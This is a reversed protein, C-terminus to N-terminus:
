RQSLLTECALQGTRAEEAYPALPTGALARIDEELGAADGQRRRADARLLHLLGDSPVRVLGESYAAEAEAHRGLNCDALGRLLYADPLGPLAARLADAEAAALDHQGLVLGTFSSLLPGLPNAAGGAGFTGRLLLNGLAPDPYRRLITESLAAAEPLRGERLAILAALAYPYNADPGLAIARELDERARAEDGGLYHLAGRYTHGFWDDPRLAVVQDYEAVAAALDGRLLADNALMARPIAWDAPGIRRATEIDLRAEDLRGARQRALGRSTYLIPNGGSLAIAESLEAVAAMADDAFLATARHYHTAVSSGIPEAPTVPRLGMIAVTRVTEYVDGQANQLLSLAGLVYPAASERRADSIRLRVNAAQEVFARDVRVGPMAEPAGVQVHVELHDGRDEGWVVIAARNAEAAARAEDDSTVPRPYVRVRIRSFPAEVELAQRLDDAVADVEDGELRAVLVMFDGPAVPAVREPALAGQQAGPQAGMTARLGGLGSRLALGGGLALVAVVALLLLGRTRSRRPPSRAPEPPVPATIPAAALPTDGARAPPEVHSALLQALLAPAELTASDHPVPSSATPMDEPTVAPAAGAAQARMIQELAAGVQRAGSIRRERDKELMQSVLRALAPPVDPRLRRLDPAPRTLIASLLAGPQGAEFPRRGALMEFLMVGFSWIDARADPPAGECVEPSLYAFTGIMVGTETLRAGAGIYAAGFDTLRPAGDAALLVNAPKIDRHVIDLRHVRALADALDLAIELARRIPLPGQARLLAELSGGPVYEMVLYQRGDEELADLMKVIGPHDLRRLALAERRFRELLQPDLAAVDPRLAKIAVDAGTRTDRGRFVAGMGGQGILDGLLYRDAILRESSM